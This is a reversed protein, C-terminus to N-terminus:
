KRVTHACIMSQISVLGATLGHVHVSLLLRGGAPLNRSTTPHIEITEPTQNSSGWAGCAIIDFNIVETNIFANSFNPIADAPNKIMYLVWNGQANADANECETNFSAWINHFNIEERPDTPAQIFVTAQAGVAVDAHAVDIRKAQM